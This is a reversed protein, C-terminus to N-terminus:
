CGRARVEMLHRVYVVGSPGRNAVESWSGRHYRGPPGARCAVKGKVARVSTKVEKSGQRTKETATCHGLRGGLHELWSRPPTIFERKEEGTMETTVLLGHQVFSKERKVVLM